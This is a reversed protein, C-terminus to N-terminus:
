FLHLLILFIIHFDNNQLFSQRILLMYIHISISLKVYRHKDFYKKFLTKKMVTIIIM